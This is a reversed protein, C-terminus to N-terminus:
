GIRERYWIGYDTDYALLKTVDRDVIMRLQDDSCTEETWMLPM